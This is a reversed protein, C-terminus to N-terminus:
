RASSTATTSSVVVPPQFVLWTVLGNHGHDPGQQQSADIITLTNGLVTSTTPDVVLQERLGHTTFTIGEGPRGAQDTAHPQVTVGNTSALVQFAAARVSPSIIHAEVGLSELLQVALDPVYATSHDDASRVNHQQALAQLQRRLTAPDGSLGTFPSTERFSVPNDFAPRPNPLKPRGATLWGPHESPPLVAPSYVIRERGTGNASAWMEFTDSVYVYFTPSQPGYNGPVWHQEAYRRYLYQGPGPSLQPQIAAVTAVRALVAHTIAASADPVNIDPRPRRSSSAVLTTVLLVVALTVVAGAVIRQVSRRRHRWGTQDSAVNAASRFFNRRDRHAFQARAVRVDDLEVPRIEGEFLTRIDDILDTM